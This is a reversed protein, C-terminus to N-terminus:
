RLVTVSTIVTTWGDGGDATKYLGSLWLRQANGPDQTASLYDGWRIDCPPTQTSLCASVGPTAGRVVKNLGTSMVAAQPSQTPSSRTYTMVPRGNGDPVVAAYTQDFGATPRTKLYSLTPTTGLTIRGDVNCDLSGCTAMQGFEIIASHFATVEYNANLVRGDLDGAGLNGGPISPEHPAAQTDPGLDTETFAVNGAAPTGTVTGLYVDNGPFGQVLYGPSTSTLQNAARYQGRPVNIYKMRPTASGSLVDSLQFTWIATGCGSGCGFPGSGVVILKNSTFEISPQDVSTNPGANFLYWGGNPNGTKSVAFRTVSNTLDSCVIAYRNVAKGYVARPDICFGNGRFFSSFEQHSTMSGSKTYVTFSPNITEVIYTRGVAVTPEGPSVNDYGHATFSSISYSPTTAAAAQAAGPEVLVVALSCGVLGVCWHAGARGCGLARVVWGWVSM